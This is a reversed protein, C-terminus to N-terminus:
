CSYVLSFLYVLYQVTSSMVRSLVSGSAIFYLKSIVRLVRIRLQPGHAFRSQMIANGFKANIHLVSLSFKVWM